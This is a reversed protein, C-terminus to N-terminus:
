NIMWREILSLIYLPTAFLFDVVKIMCSDLFKWDVNIKQYVWNQRDLKWLSSYILTYLKIYHLLGQKQLLLSSFITSCALRNFTKGYRTYKHLYKGINFVMNKLLIWSKLCCWYCCCRRFINFHYLFTSDRKWDSKIHVNLHYIYNGSYFLTKINWAFIFFM